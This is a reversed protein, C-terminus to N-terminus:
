NTPCHNRSYRPPFSTKSHLSIPRQIVCFLHRTQITQKELMTKRPLKEVSRHIGISKAMVKPYRQIPSILLKKPSCGTSLRPPEPCNPLHNNINLHMTPRLKRRHSQLVVILVTEEVCGDKYKGQEASAEGDGEVEDLKRKDGQEVSHPEKPAMSTYVSTLTTIKFSSYSSAHM